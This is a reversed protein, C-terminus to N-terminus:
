RFLHGCEHCRRCRFPIHEYDIPQQWIEDHYELEIYEPLPEAINMYVCIRTYSRYKGRKTLEAVKVFTRISNCIGELINPDWLEMPLGLLIVCIPAAILKENDPNYRDEWHRMFLGANNMFYSVEEFTREKDELNAFITTSFGKEGLKLDIRGKPKWRQRIWITLDKQSPWFSVFKYILAHDRM